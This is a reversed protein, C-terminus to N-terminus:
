SKSMYAIPREDDEEGQTLVAGVAYDSADTHITFMLHWQPTTLIPATILYEKLKDFADQHLQTWEIKKKASATLDTIPGAVHAFNPVFRRYYSAMGHFRRVEKLTQPVPYRAICSVKEPDVRIGREDIVFGLFKMESMCFRSKDMSITLNAKTLRDSVQGLVELHKEFTPTIIIIDDLYVFVYPELDHGMAIDMLRVMHQAATVAGFPMRKIQYLGDGPVKFCLIKQTEEAVPIQWFADKLDVASIYKTSQMNALITSVNPLPYADINQTIANIRRLDICLRLRGDQKPVVVFPSSWPSSSCRAVVGMKEMRKVEAKVKELIYPSVEYQRQNVPAHGGVDIVFEILDTCGIHEPTSEPFTAKVAELAVKQEESLQITPVTRVVGTPIEPGEIVCV